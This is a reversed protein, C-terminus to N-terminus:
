EGPKPQYPALAWTGEVDSPVLHERYGRAPIPHIRGDYTNIGHLYFIHLESGTFGMAVLDVGEEPIPLDRDDMLADALRQFLNPDIDPDEVLRNLRTWDVWREINEPGGYEEEPVIEYEGFVPDEM